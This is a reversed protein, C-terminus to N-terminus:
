IRAANSGETEPASAYQQPTNAMEAEATQRLTKMLPGAGANAQHGAAKLTESVQPSFTAANNSTDGAWETGQSKTAALPTEAAQMFEAWMGAALETVDRGYSAVSQVTPQVQAATLSFFAQPDKVASLQRVVAISNAVSAKSAAINLAVTKEIGVAAKNGLAHFAAVQSALLAETTANCKMQKSFM